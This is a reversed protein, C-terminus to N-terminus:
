IGCLDRWVYKEGEGKNVRGKNRKRQEKQHVVKSKLVFPLETILQTYEKM